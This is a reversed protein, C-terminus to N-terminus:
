SGAVLSAKFIEMLRKGQSEELVGDVWSLVLNFRGAFFTMCLNLGPPAFATPTHFLDLAPLGMFTPKPLGSEKVCAFYFSCMRGKFTGNIVKAVLSRPFIRGLASADEMAFPIKDKMAQFFQDRLQLALAPTSEGEAFPATFLLFSLHNFFLTEWEQNALRTNATTFLLYDTGSFGPTPVVAKLAAVARAAVSPLVIPVNIEKLVLNNLDATQEVTLSDHVFRIHRGRTQKPLTLAVIERKQLDLLLRNLTQGSKFRRPWNDLHAPETVTVRPSIEDLKGLFTEDLLRYFLEAGFADFLRHDFVLGIKTRRDGVHILLFRLHVNSSELPTNVHEELLRRAEDDADTPLDVVRLPIRARYASRPVKWFPALNLLDRGYCGHILPFRASVQDLAADLAESSLRGELELVAQSIAGCGVSSKAAEHLSGIVWDIGRLYRRSKWYPLAFSM